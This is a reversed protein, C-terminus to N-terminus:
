FNTYYDLFAALGAQHKEFTKPVNSLAGRFDLEKLTKNRTQIDALMQAIATIHQFFAVQETTGFKYLRIGRYPLEARFVTDEYKDFFHLVTDFMLVSESTRLSRVYVLNLRGVMEGHQQETSNSGIAMVKVYEELAKIIWLLDPSYDDPELKYRTRLFEELSPKEKKVVPQDQLSVYHNVVDPDVNPAGSEAQEALSTRRKIRNIDSM